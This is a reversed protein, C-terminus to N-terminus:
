EHFGGQSQDYPRNEVTLFWSRYMYVGGFHLEQGGAEDVRSSLADGQLSLPGNVIDAPLSAPLLLLAVILWGLAPAVQRILM